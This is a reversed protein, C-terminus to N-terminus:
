SQSQRRGPLRAAERFDRCSRFEPSRVAEADQDKWVKLYLDKGAESLMINNLMSQLQWSQGGVAVPIFGAAKVKDLAAFMEDWTKPESTVGSKEFVPKSYFIWNYGHDNIPAGYIHGNYQIANYFDPTLNSKWDEKEALEDLTRLLGPRRSREDAYWHQVAHGDASQRWPHPQHRHASGGLRRRRDRHRGM